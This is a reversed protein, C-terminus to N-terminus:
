TDDEPMDLFELDDVIGEDDDDEREIFEDDENGDELDYIDDDDEDENYDRDPDSANDAKKQKKQMNLYFYAGVGGGVLLLLLLAALAGGKKKPEEEEPVEEEPPEVPTVEVPPTEEPEKEGLQAQLAKKDEDDLLAILDYEDVQNLFHVNQNGHNDRDIIIYFINGNKTSITLFQKGADGEPKDGLDDITEMNAEPTLPPMPEKEEEEVITVPIDEVAVEETEEDPGGGAFATMANAGMAIMVCTTGAAIKLALRKLKNRM